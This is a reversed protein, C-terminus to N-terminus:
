KKSGNVQADHNHSPKKDEAWSDQSSIAEEREFIEHDEDVSDAVIVGAKIINDVLKIIDDIQPYKKHAEDWTEDFETEDTWALLEIQGDSELNSGWGFNDLVEDPIDKLAVKIDKLTQIKM